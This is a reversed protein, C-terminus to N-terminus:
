RPESATETTSDLERPQEDINTQSGNSPTQAVSETPVREQVGATSGGAIVCARNTPNIGDVAAGVGWLISFLLAYAVIGAEVVIVIMMPVFIFAVGFILFSICGGSTKQGMSRSRKADYFKSPWTAASAWGKKAIDRCQTTFSSSQAM